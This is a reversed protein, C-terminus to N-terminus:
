HVPPILIRPTISYSTGAESNSLSSWPAPSHGRSSSLSLSFVSRKRSCVTPDHPDQPCPSTQMGNWRRSYSRTHTSWWHQNYSIHFILATLHYVAKEVLTHLPSEFSDKRFSQFICPVIFVRPLSNWNTAFQAVTPWLSYPPARPFILMCVTKMRFLSCLSTLLHVSIQM